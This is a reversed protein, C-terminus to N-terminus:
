DDPGNCDPNYIPKFKTIKIKDEIYYDNYYDYNEDYDNYEEIDNIIDDILGGDYHIVNIINSNDMIFLNNDNNPIIIIKGDKIIKKGIIVKNSNNHSRLTVEM